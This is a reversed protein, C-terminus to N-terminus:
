ATAAKLRFNWFITIVLYAAAVAFVMEFSLGADLLFGFAAPGLATSVVMLASFLSRVTGLFEVGFMEAQLASKVTNGVGSSVGVLVFFVPTVWRSDFFFILMTAMLLPLLFYPFLHRASLTDTWQGALLVCVASAIAYGTFSLAVWEASWGKSAGLPLQYFFIATNLFPMALVGPAIYWFAKSSLITRYTSSKKVPVKTAAGGMAKTTTTTSTNLTSERFAAPDTTVDKLLYAVLLPLVLALLLASLLLTNRWGLEQISIAILIPFLAGGAAHGLTALSIAKGRADTFYRAMTTVATHSMLGQGALRMGWLGAGLWIIHSAQSFVLLSLCLGAIVLWSFTRLDAQDIFSGLWTLCFASILTAIAYLSGFSANTISFERLVEPVFLSVFFTQGFSSFFTLLFGFLVLNRNQNFFNIWSRM